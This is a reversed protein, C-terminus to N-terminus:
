GVQPPVLRYSHAYTYGAEARITLLRFQASSPFPIGNVGGRPQFQYFVSPRKVYKKGSRSFGWAAFCPLAGFSAALFGM